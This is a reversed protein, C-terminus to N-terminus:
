NRQKRGRLNAENGFIGEFEKQIRAHGALEGGSDEWNRSIDMFDGEIAGRRMRGLERRNM